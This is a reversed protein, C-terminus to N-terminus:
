RFVPEPKASLTSDFTIPFGSQKAWMLARQIMYENCKLPYADPHELSTELYEMWGAFLQKVITQAASNLLHAPQGTKESLARRIIESPSIKSFMRKGSNVFKTSEARAYDEFRIQTNAFGSHENRWGDILKKLFPEPPDGLTIFTQVFFHLRKYAAGPKDKKYPLIEREGREPDDPDCPVQVTQKVKRGGELEAEMVVPKTWYEMHAIEVLEGDLEMRRQQADRELGALKKERDILEDPRSVPEGSQGVPATNGKTKNVLQLWVLERQECYQGLWDILFDANIGRAAVSQFESRFEGDRCLMFFRIIDVPTLGAYNELIHEAVDNVDGPVNTGMYEALKQIQAAIFSIGMQWREINGSFFKYIEPFALGAEMPLHKMMALKQSQTGKLMVGMVIKEIPESGFPLTALRFDSM